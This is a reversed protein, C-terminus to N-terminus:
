EGVVLMMVMGLFNPSFVLFTAPLAFTLDSASLALTRSLRQLHLWLM